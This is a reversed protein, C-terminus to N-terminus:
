PANPDRPVGSGAPGPPAEGPVAGPLCPLVSFGQVRNEAAVSTSAHIKM